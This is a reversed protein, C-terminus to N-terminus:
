GFAPSGFANPSYSSVGSRCRPAHEALEGAGAQDVEDAAAAARRGACMAAIASATSPTGGRRGAGIRGASRSDPRSGSVM